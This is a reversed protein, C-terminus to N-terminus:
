RGGSKKKEETPSVFGFLDPIAGLRCRSSLSASRSAQLSERVRLAASTVSLPAEDEPPRRASRV